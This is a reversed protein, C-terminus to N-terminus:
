GNSTHQMSIANFGNPNEQISVTKNSAITIFEHLNHAVVLMRGDGRYAISAGLQSTVEEYGLISLKNGVIIGMWLAGEQTTSYFCFGDDYAGWVICFNFVQEANPNVKLTFSDQPKISYAGNARHITYYWLNKDSEGVACNAVLLEIGAGPGNKKTSLSNIGRQANENYKIREHVTGEPFSIICLEGNESGTIFYTSREITDLFSIGRINQLGWPNSPNESQLNLSSQFEFHKGPGVESIWYTVYGNEHGAVFHIQNKIKCSTGSNVVGFNADYTLSHIASLDKWDGALSKWVTMSQEDNSSIFTKHDVWELMQIGVSSSSSTATTVVPGKNPNKDTFEFISITGDWRGVAFHKEDVWHSVQAMNYTTGDEKIPLSTPSVYEEPVLSIGRSKLENNSLFLQPIRKM